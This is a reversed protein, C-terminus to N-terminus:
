HIFNILNQARIGWTYNQLFSNKAATALRNALGKDQLLLDLSNKWSALDQPSCLIADKNSTLIERICALDSAIIPKACSLYEFIKLPSMYATINRGSLDKTEEEFPALLLDCALLYDSILRHPIHGHLYINPPYSNAMVRSLDSKAIGFLNFNYNPCLKALEITLRWGKGQYCNGAFGVEPKPTESHFKISPTQPAPEFAADPFCKLKNPDNTLKLASKIQACLANSIAAFKARPQNKLYRFLVPAFKGYSAMDKHCEFITKLGLFSCVWAAALHRSLVFAADQRKAFYACKLAWYYSLGYRRRYPILRLQFPFPQSFEEALVTRAQNQDGVIPALLTVDHGLDALALTQSVIQIVGASATDFFSDAILVIKM